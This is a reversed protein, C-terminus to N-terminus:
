KRPLFNGHFGFPVGFPVNVRAVEQWSAADLVLLFSQGENGMVISLVVGDDEATSGPRPVMVPEAPVTGPEHWLQAAGQAVDFKALANGVSCPPRGAVSYAYRYPMGQLWLWCASSSAHSCPWSNFPQM